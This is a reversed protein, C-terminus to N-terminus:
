VEELSDDHQKKCSQNARSFVFLIGDKHFLIKRGCALASPDGVLM